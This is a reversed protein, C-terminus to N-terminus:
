SKEKSKPEPKPRPETPASPKSEPEPKPRPEIEPKAQSQSEGDPKAEAKPESEPKSEPGTKSEPKPKTQAEPKSDGDPKSEAKQEPKSESELTPKNPKPGSKNGAKAELEPKKETKQDPKPKAEPKPQLPALAKRAIEIITKRDEDSLKDATEFRACVEAPIQAAADRVARDADTMQEIPVPDFLNATLALLIAIQAPVSVPAFEPQKLCARIRRGHEIIKRTDEDLRAGFRAFTELEEFQAYALKLDGAVARYAAWQAKGGVRSVSRGVDVAPLVGLEFLSPSLYIQGDTISILNTPIYASINQAETEIIPLATLSGGRRETCLHTARELMRSHIYFIDGPFAERGPPRRLLLSLERYARAHQTLDDYVILVDRGAEMFHEAISTAAYPAIYELGPPDNGEAVVVVTYDMAGTKRLNAVAKAVASARQGIACYVCVVNQGRQNLITDLAIATKGTQRDGLILERQGRGIPILADIVKLGTQLPVTVPARDMIPAASREIPLRKSAAVPGNDDLPRGLPDIVRGLLGDGVAVDMVRGTREVEDGAHLHWYDGLLVVGIEDEDVNFAIGFVGGPFELLEEFGVGPLGSVRAIGTSINTITGVEHPKLQPTFTERVQSIGAFTRDFVSQLSEPVTSM